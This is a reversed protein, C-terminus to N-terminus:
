ESQPYIGQLAIIYSICLYPMLNNHPMGGEGSTSLTQANLTILTSPEANSPLYMESVFSQGVDIPGALLQNQPADSVADIQCAHIPHVHPVIDSTSLTVTEVGSKDAMDYITGSVMCYGRNVVLRGKLDPLAFNAVGDGGYTTGIMSFLEENGNIDLVTGDCLAWGQPPRFGAFARIEGIYNTM